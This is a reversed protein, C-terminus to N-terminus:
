ASLLELAEDIVPSRRAASPGCFFAMGAALYRDQWSRDTIHSYNAIAAESFKFEHAQNAHRALYHRARAVLLQPEGGAELYALAARVARLRDGPIFAFIEDIAEAGASSLTAPELADIRLDAQAGGVLRRFMPMFSACQLLALQQTREDSSVRYAYHLANATTQAHVPVIGPDRMLLEAATAFLAEWITVASVRRELLDVVAAGAELESAERLLALLELRAQPDHRGQRWAAPIRSLLAQNTRWPRDAEFDRGAPNPDEGTNQLAAVASRLIPEAYGSGLLDILRHANQVTIAKHGIERLDRAGYPFLVAFVDSLSAVRAYNVLAADAAERDWRDLADVLARRAAGATAVPAAPAAAMRWGTESLEEAQTRKFYDAAWFTPLWRDESSSNITTSQIAQLVMVAHYKFGVDPYPQVNRVAALSLATLLDEFGFGARILRLLERPVRERPAEELLALASAIEQETAAFGLKGTLGLTTASSAVRLFSRRDV